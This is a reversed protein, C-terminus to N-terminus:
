LTCLKILKQYQNWLKKASGISSFRGPGYYFEGTKVKEPPEELGLASSGGKCMQEEATAYFTDGGSAKLVLECHRM